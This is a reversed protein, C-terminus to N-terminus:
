RTPRRGRGAAPRSRRGASRAACGTRGAATAPPGSGAAARGRRRRPCRPRRGRRAGARPRRCRSRRRPRRTWRRSRRACRRARRVAARTRRRPACGATRACPEVQQLAPQDVEVLLVQGVLDAAARLLVVVSSELMHAARGPSGATAPRGRASGTTRRAPPAGRRRGRSARPSDWCCSGRSRRRGPRPAARTQGPVGARAAVAAAEELPELLAGPEAVDGLVDRQLQLLLGAVVHAAALGAAGADGTLVVDDVPVDVLLDAQSGPVSATRSTFWRTWASGSNSKSASSSRNRSCACRVANPGDVCAIRSSATDRSMGHSRSLSCESTCSPWPTWWCRMRAVM